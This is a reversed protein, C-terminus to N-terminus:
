NQRTFPMGMLELLRQAQKNDKSSTAITVQLGRIRDISDYNIEPFIIQERIGLSFNGRGDFSTRPIGSFDRIRPLAVNFLRDLFYMMHRDRLTVAVGIQAGARLKFSAISKRARTVVPKQGAIATIDKVVSEIAKSNTLAEGLSVNLVVKRVRPVQMPTRLNFEKMLAPVIEERYRKLLRPMGRPKPPTPDKKETKEDRAVKAKESPVAQKRGESTTAKPSAEPAVKPKAKAETVDPTQGKVRPEKPEKPERQAKSQRPKKATEKSELGNDRQVEPM